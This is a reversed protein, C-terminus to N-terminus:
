KWTGHLFSLDLGPYSVKEVWKIHLDPNGPDGYSDSVVKSGQSWGGVAQLTGYPAEARRLADRFNHRLSYATQRAGLKIEAPIFKERLRRLPYSAVNGYGDPKIEPFVRPEKKGHLKKRQEVFVRFGIKNIESHIPIRRRSNGNKLHETERFDIYWTGQDSQKIDSWHIQCIENPRAGTYLMLLPLWFRWGLDPKSYRKAAGPRCSKYFSGTFFQVVQQDSWPERREEDSQVDKKLPKVGPAFNASLLSKRVAFALVDNLSDLYQAQTKPVLIAAKTKAAKEVAKLVPLNAFRQKRHAPLKSIVQRVHQVTDDNIAGLPTDTGVIERILGLQSCKTDIFKQNVENEAMEVKREAWFRDALDGFTLNSHQSQGFLADHHQGSFDDDLRDISRRQLEILCRRVLEALETVIAQDTPEAGGDGIVKDFATSVWHDGRPDDRNTLVELGIEADMKMEAREEGSIAPNKALRQAALSDQEEVYKRLRDEFIPKSVALPPAEGGNSALQHEAALLLQDVEVNLLNRRKLAERHVGTKLSQKFFGKGVSPILTKPM